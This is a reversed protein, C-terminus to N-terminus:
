FHYGVCSRGGEQYWGCTLDTDTVKFGWCGDNWSTTAVSGVTDGLSGIQLREAFGVVEDDPRTEVRARAELVAQLAARLRDSPEFDESTTIQVEIESM